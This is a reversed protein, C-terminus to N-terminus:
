ISVHVMSAACQAFRRVSNAMIHRMVLVSRLATAPFRAREVTTVSLSANTWVARVQARRVRSPAATRTVWPVSAHQRWM